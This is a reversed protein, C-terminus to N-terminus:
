PTEKDLLELAVALVDPREDAALPFTDSSDALWSGDALLRAAHLRGRQAAPVDAPVAVWPEFRETWRQRM